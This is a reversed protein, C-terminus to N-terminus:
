DFIGTSLYREGTDPLMVVITKSAYAADKALEMAAWVAAGSSIGVLVGERRAIERVTQVADETKVTQVADYVSRDLADPVFNAGIGQIGHPGAKGQSLLPSDAPEVAVIRVQPNQEKLYRGVGTITGGTGVGAVFVDVAGDTDQWIEPGTTKYHADPNAPNVFQGALISGEIERHLEDAKDVAGQMGLNGPTLVIEAGYAAILRRRELSMTEPMTLIVRYGRPVAVSALGIGTNGSTPELITAGPKLKGTREAHEIMSRAARDKASGAPNMCELKGLIRAQLGHAQALADFAVLPTGGILDSVKAYIKAMSM